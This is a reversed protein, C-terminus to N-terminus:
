ENEKRRETLMIVINEDVTENNKEEVLYEDSNTVIIPTTLDFGNEKIKDIDFEILLDGKKVVDKEKVYEKFYKGNLRVTDIGIHILLEVGNSLELGIAHKTEFVMKVIADSPAFIKGIEPIVATGYGLTNNSFMLDNVNKLSIQKGKIPSYIKKSNELISEDNMNNDNKQIEDNDKFLILTFIFSLILSILFGLLGYVFNMSNDGDIFMTINALGPGAIVFSKLAVFGVFGGGIFSSAIISYLVKKNLLTVGYLAPETIGMLASIGASFAVSKLEKNKSKLSVAFCAGSESINHALSAPLYMMEYGLKSYTSIAYPVMAKHMGTAIMFPLIASLLAIGIYGLKFYIFLILKTLYEGLTYGLPGLFLYGLPITIALSLMPVFFIRISKPSFKNLKKELIGVCITILIAPFVQSNYQINKLTLGFIKVGESLLAVNSPLLFVGVASLAVLRNTNLKNATTIAVMLPLFYFTADSISNLIIYLGDTKEVIKLVSLLILLSKLVGAGAIAPVLPQFIGILYELFMSGFKKTENNKLSKEPKFIKILEDYVEVVNNGIVVQVQTNVIVGIVGKIKKLNEIEVLNKNHVFFRLRTSCHEVSSINESNGVFKLIDSAIKKYDM